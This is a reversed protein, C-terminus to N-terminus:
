VHMLFTEFPRKAPALLREPLIPNNDDRFLQSQHCSLAREKALLLDPSLPFRLLPLSNLLRPEARHWTWFFYSTLRLGQKRCVEEAARGCAEHDPHFDGRWPAVVHSDPRVLPLLAAVLQNIQDSVGSDTLGLRVIDGEAVGLEGLAATQEAQRLPGLDVSDCYANEGDTVAVVQVPVGRNRHACILGGAALTEDDPHPAIVVLPDDGPHWTGVSELVSLWAEEEVLPVIM